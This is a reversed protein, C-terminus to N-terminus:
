VGIVCMIRFLYFLIFRQCSTYKRFVWCFRERQKCAEPLQLNTSRLRDAAYCRWRGSWGSVALEAMGQCPAFGSAATRPHRPQRPRPRPAPRAVLVAARPQGAQWARWVGAGGRVLSRACHGLYPRAALWVAPTLGAAGSYLETKIRTKGM